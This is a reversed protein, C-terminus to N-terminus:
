RRGMITLNEYHSIPIRTLAYTVSTESCLCTCSHHIHSSTTTDEELVRDLIDTLFPMFVEIVDVPHRTCLILVFSM